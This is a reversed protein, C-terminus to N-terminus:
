LRWERRTHMNADVVTVDAADTLNKVSLSVRDGAVLTVVGSSSV